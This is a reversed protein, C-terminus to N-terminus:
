KRFRILNLTGLTGFLAKPSEGQDRLATNLQQQVCAFDQQQADSLVEQVNNDVDALQLPYGTAYRFGKRVLCTQIADTEALQKALDKTGNFTLTQPDKVSSIGNLTGNLSVEIQTGDALVEYVSNAGAKARLRGVNDFDEMGFLPNIISEHCGACAKDETYLEYFRRSDIGGYMQEYAAVKAQAAARDGDLQSNPPDIHHCLMLERVRVARKIPSTRENHANVAMFAGSAIVGGRDTTTVQSFDDSFEGSLGYFDALTQNVFTYDANYFDSFPVADNYFVHQFLTKIEQAMAQKVAPTFTAVGDRSLRTVENTRLWIGAFEGVHARGRASNMLRSVQTAVQTETTLQGNAAAQLLQADPTSGTFMYSLATAYEYPTLVYADADLQSLLDTATTDDTVAIGQSIRISNILLNKDNGYVDYPTRGQDGSFSITVTQAGSKNHIVMPYYQYNAQDVSFIGVVENGVSVTMTPWTTDYPTGKAEIELITVPYFAALTHAISGDSWLNYGQTDTASGGEPGGVSGLQDFDLARVQTYQGDSIYDNNNPTLQYYGAQRATAVDVGVESRYLFQPSSLVAELAVALGNTSGFQSFLTRYGAAEADTLPRRFAPYAFENIFRDACTSVDDCSFPKGNALAWSAIQEANTLYVDAVQVNVSRYQMNPFGGISGDNNQVTEAMDMTIGLLDELSNQYEQSNLLVLRRQGYNIAHSADCANTDTPEALARLYAATDEACQNGCQAVANNGKPMEFHIYYQLGDFANTDSPTDYAFVADQANLKFIGNSIYSNSFDGHCQSCQAAWYIEGSAADGQESLTLTQEDTSNTNSLIAVPQWLANTQNFLSSAQQIQAGQMLYLYSQGTQVNYWFLDAHNDQNFDAVGQLQWNLDAVQNIRLGQQRQGDQMLYAYNEGSTQHRWVIDDHGDANLDGFGAWQWQPDTLTGLYKTAVNRKDQMQHIYLAGTQRHRWLLDDTGDANFDASGILQWVPDLQNLAYGGNQLQGDFQYVYNDGRGQHRWVLEDHHDGNLDAVSQIQWQPDAIVPLPLVKAVRNDQFFHIVYTPQEAYQWVLDTNGDGDFDGNHVIHWNPDAITTLAHGSRVLNADLQHLYNNGSQQHRWYVSTDALSAHSLVLAACGMAIRSVTQM